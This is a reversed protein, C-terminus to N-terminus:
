VKDRNTKPLFHTATVLGEPYTSPEVPPTVEDTMRPILSIYMKRPLEGLWLGM